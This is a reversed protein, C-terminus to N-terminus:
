PLASKLAQLQARLAVLTNKLTTIEAVDAPDVPDAPQPFTISHGGPILGLLINMVAFIVQLPNLQANVQLVSAGQNFKAADLAEIMPANAATAAADIATNLNNINLIIANLVDIVCSLMADLYDIIDKIFIPVSLAPIANLICTFATALDSIKTILTSPDLSTIADPVAEIAAKMKQLVDVICFIFGYPAISLSISPLMLDVILKCDTTPQASSPLSLQMGGPVDIAFDLALKSGVIPVEAVEPNSVGFDLEAM